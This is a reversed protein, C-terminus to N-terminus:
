RKAEEEKAEYEAPPTPVSDWALVQYLAWDKKAKEIAEAASNAQVCVSRAEHWTLAVKFTKGPTSM